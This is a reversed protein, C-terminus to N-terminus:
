KLYFSICMIYLPFYLLSYYRTVGQVSTSQASIRTMFHWLSLYSVASTHPKIDSTQHFFYSIFPFIFM